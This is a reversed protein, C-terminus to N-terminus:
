FFILCILASIINVRYYALIRPSVLTNKTIQKKLVDQQISDISLDEIKITSNEVYDLMKQCLTWLSSPM